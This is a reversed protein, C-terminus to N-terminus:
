GPPFMFDVTHPGWRAELQEWGPLALMCDNPSLVRSPADNSKSSVVYSLSLALNFRPTVDYISIAVDSLAKSKRRQNTWAHM